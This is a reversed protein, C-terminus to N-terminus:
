SETFAELPVDHRLKKVSSSSSSSSLEDGERKERIAVQIKTGDPVYEKTETTAGTGNLPAASSASTASRSSTTAASSSSSSSSSLTSEVREELACDFPVRVHPGLTWAVTRSNTIRAAELSATRLPAQTLRRDLCALRVCDVDVVGGGGSGGRGLRVSYHHATSRLIKEEDREYSQLVRLSSPTFSKVNSTYLLHKLRREELNNSQAM